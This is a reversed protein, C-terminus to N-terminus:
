GRAVVEEVAFAVRDSGRATRLATSGAAQAAPVDTRGVLGARYAVSASRRVPRTTAVVSTDDPVMRRPLPDDAPAGFPLGRAAAM